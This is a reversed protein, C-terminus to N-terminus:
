RHEEFWKLIHAVKSILRSPRSAIGHSADPIRVLAADIKRIKLAQYYQESESPPTRHDQEGVMVMTPTTVNGVLSIPSVALYHEAHEWPPGPFNYNAWRIGDTTLAFSYWNIVPKIVAAARFRNTKGIAWSSLVGGGSGGTIYLQDEDIYGKEVVADVGSMLDDYDHGPYRREILGAFERGYSTSGRPNTYLVVYGAAAYLQMEASFSPGYDSWPGGHIELLLPYKKSPSFDPPTMVWGQVRRGDHSSEFWLEEVRGLSKHGLLDDNLATLTRPAQPQTVALESPHHPDGSVFAVRDNNSVTFQGGVYPRGPSRGSAHVSVPSRDGDLGVRAIRIRGEDAFQVFLSAGDSSWKVASVPRDLGPTLPRADSGDRNMVYVGTQHYMDDSDDWGLYAVRTGDPSVAPALDAGARETLKRPERGEIDLEYLDSEREYDWDDSRNASFLITKSDAAWAPAGFIPYSGPTLRRPSGGEAPVLFLQNFGEERYGQGDARYRVQRIMRAPAAWEAGKPKEPLKAYPAPKEPVFMSFAIWQGNPSWVIATPARELRTLPASQLTDLWLRHIQSKGESPAIYVLSKGDPAWRPSSAPGTVLPRHNSGDYDVIWLEGRGRDKMIDFSRRVYVIREGNPSIQPDAAFELNFVDRATFLRDDIDATPEAASTVSAVLSVLLLISATKM